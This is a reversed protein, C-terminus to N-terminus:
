GARPRLTPLRQVDSPATPPPSQPHAWPTAGDVPRLARRGRNVLAARPVDDALRDAPEVGGDKDVALGAGALGVGHRGRAGGRARLSQLPQLCDWGTPTGGPGRLTTGEEPGMARAPNRGKTQSKTSDNGGCPRPKLVECSEPLGAMGGPGTGGPFSASASPSTWRAARSTHARM